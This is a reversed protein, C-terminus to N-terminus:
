PTKDVQEAFVRLSRLDQCVRCWDWACKMILHPEHAKHSAIPSIPITSFCFRCTLKHLRLDANFPQGNGTIWHLIWHSASTDDSQQKQEVQEVMAYLGSVTSRLRCPMSLRSKLCVAAQQRCRQWSLLLFFIFSLDDIIQSFRIPGAIRSRYIISVFPEQHAQCGGKLKFARVHM